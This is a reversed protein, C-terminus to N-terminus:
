LSLYDAQLRRVAAAAVAVGGKASAEAPEAKAERDGSEGGSSEVKM